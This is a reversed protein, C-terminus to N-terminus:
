AQIRMLWFRRFIPLLCLLAPILLWRGDDRWIPITNNINEEFKEDLASENLWQQIDKETNTFSINKGGGAKALKNFATSHTKSASLNLISTRIHKQFSKKAALIAANSPATGTLILIDGYSVGSQQILNRGEKLADALNMGGVPMINPDLQDVLADITQADRTLPSVVFSEGTYVILGFQGKSPQQFLDHLKFKARTLRNPKIDQKLMAQSLDMIILHPHVSHYTPTPLKKGTPGALSLIMFFAAGLLYLLARKQASEGQHTILHPLLHKDCVAEWTHAISRQRLLFFAIFVLPLLAFFWYPRLFHLLYNM